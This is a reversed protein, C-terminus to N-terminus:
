TTSVRNQRSVRRVGPVCFPRTDTLRVATIYYWFELSLSWMPFNSFPVISVWSESLFTLVAGLRILPYDIPVLNYVAPHLGFTRGVMDCVVTLAMAPVAVSWLRGFRAILFGRPTTERTDAVNAIVYGSLVFFVMVAQHGFDQIWPLDFLQRIHALMVILTAMARVIDLYISERHGICRAM